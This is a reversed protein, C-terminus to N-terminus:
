AYNQQLAMQTLDFHDYRQEHGLRNSRSTSGPRSDDCSTVMFTTSPIGKDPTKRFEARRDIRRRRGCVSHSDNSSWSRNAARTSQAIAARSRDAGRLIVASFAIALCAALPRLRSVRLTNLRHTRMPMRWDATTASSLPRRSRILRGTAASSIRSHASLRVDRAARRGPCQKAANSARRRCARRFESSALFLAARHRGVVSGIHPNRATM